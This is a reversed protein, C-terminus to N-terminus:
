QKASRIHERQERFVFQVIAERDSERVHRFEMVLVQGQGYPELRQVTGAVGAMNVPLQSLILVMELAEGVQLPPTPQLCKLGAGSLEVIESKIPYDSELRRQSQLSLLMDLKSNMDELFTKVGEPLGLDKSQGHGSSAFYEKHSRFLPPMDPSDIKRAYGTLRTAVRSYSRSESDTM